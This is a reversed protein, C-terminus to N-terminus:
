VNTQAAPVAAQQAVPPPPPSDASGTGSRVQRPTSVKPVDSRLHKQQAFRILLEMCTLFRQSEQLEKFVFALKRRSFEVVIIHDTPLPSSTMMQYWHEDKRVIRYVKTVGILPFEIIRGNSQNLNLTILDDLVQCHIDQYERSSTLHTLYMGSHLDLVFNKFMELLATRKVDDSADEEVGILSAPITSLQPLSVQELLERQRPTVPMAARRESEAAFTIDYADKQTIMQNIKGTSFGLNDLNSGSDLEIVVDQSQDADILGCCRLMSLLGM